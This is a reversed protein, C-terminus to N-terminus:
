AEENEESNNIHQILDNKIDELVGILYYANVDGYRWYVRQVGDKKVAEVTLLTNFGEEM